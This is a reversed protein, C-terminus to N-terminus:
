IVVFIIILIMFNKKCNILDDTKYVINAKPLELLALSDSSLIGSSNEPKNPKNPSSLQKTSFNENVVVSSSSSSSTSTPSSTSHFSTSSNFSSDSSIINNNNNNNPRCDISFPAIQHHQQAQPQQPLHHVLSQHHITALLTNSNPAMHRPHKLAVLNADARTPLIFGANLQQQQNEPVHTYNPGREPMERSFFHNNHQNSLYHKQQHYIPMASRKIFEDILKLADNNTM